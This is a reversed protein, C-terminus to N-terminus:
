RASPLWEPHLVQTYAMDFAPAAFDLALGAPFQLRCLCEALRAEQEGACGHRPNIVLALRGDVALDVIDGFNLVLNKYRKPVWVNRELPMECLELEHALADVYDERSRGAGASAYVRAAAEIVQDMLTQVENATREVIM